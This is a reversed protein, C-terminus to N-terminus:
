AAHCFNLVEPEVAEARATVDFAAIGAGARGIAGLALAGLVDGAASVEAGPLWGDSVVFVAVPAFAEACGAFGAASDDLCAVEFSDAVEFSASSLEESAVDTTAAGAGFGIIIL